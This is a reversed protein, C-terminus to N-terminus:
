EINMSFNVPDKEIIGMKKLADIIRAGMVYGVSLHLQLAAISVKKHGKLYTYVAPM